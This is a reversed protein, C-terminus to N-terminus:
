FPPLSNTETQSSVLRENKALMYILRAVMEAKTGICEFGIKGYSIKRKTQM